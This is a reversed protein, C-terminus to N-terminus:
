LGLKGGYCLHRRLKAGTVPDIVVDENNPTITVEPLVPVGKYTPVAQVNRGEGISYAANTLGQQIVETPIEFTPKQANEADYMRKHLDALQADTARVTNDQHMYRGEVLPWWMASMFPEKKKTPNSKM